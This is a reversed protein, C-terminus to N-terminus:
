QYLCDSQWIDSHKDCMLCSGLIRPILLFSNKEQLPSSTFPWHPVDLLSRCMELIYYLLIFFLCHNRIFSPMDQHARQQRWRSRESEVEGNSAMSFMPWTQCRGGQRCSLQFLVDFTISPPLTGLNLEWNSNSM